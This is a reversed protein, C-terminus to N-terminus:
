EFTHAPFLIEGNEGNVIKFYESTGVSPTATMPEGPKRDAYNVIIEGNRFETSQPAIRDGILIANTGKYINNYSIVAAIYYFTGSGGSYQTL